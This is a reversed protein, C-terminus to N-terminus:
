LVEASFWDFGSPGTRQISISAFGEASTTLGVPVTLPVSSQGLTLPATVGTGTIRVTGASFVQLTVLVTHAEGPAFGLLYVIHYPFDSPSSSMRHYAPEAETNIYCQAVYMGLIRGDALVLRSQRPDIRGIATAADLRVGGETTRANVLEDTVDRAPLDTRADVFGEAKLRELVDVGEPASLAAALRSAVDGSPRDTAAM